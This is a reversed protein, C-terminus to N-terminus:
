RVISHKSEVIGETRGTLQGTHGGSDMANDALAYNRIYYVDSEKQRALLFYRLSKNPPPGFLTNNCIYCIVSLVANSANSLATM